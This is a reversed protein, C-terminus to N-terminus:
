DVSTNGGYKDLIDKYQQIIKDFAKDTNIEPTEFNNCCGHCVPCVEPIGRSLYKCYDCQWWTVGNKKDYLTFNKIKFKINRKEM